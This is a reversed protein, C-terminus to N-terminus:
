VIACHSSVSFTEVKPNLWCAFSRLQTNSKGTRARQADDTTGARQNRMMREAKAGREGERRRSDFGKTKGTGKQEKQEATEGTEKKNRNNRRNRNKEDNKEKM